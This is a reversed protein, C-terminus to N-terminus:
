GAAMEFLGGLYVAVIVILTRGLSLLAEEMFFAKGLSLLVAM